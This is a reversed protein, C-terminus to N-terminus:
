VKGPTTQADDLCREKTSLPTTQIAEHGILKGVTIATFALVAVLVVAVFAKAFQEV